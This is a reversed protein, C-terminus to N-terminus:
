LGIILEGMHHTTWERLLDEYFIENEEMSKRSQPFYACVVRM